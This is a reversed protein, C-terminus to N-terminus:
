AHRHPDIAALMDTQSRAIGTPKWKMISKFLQTEQEDAWADNLPDHEDQPTKPQADPLPTSAASAKTRKRPPMAVTSISPSRNPIATSRLAHLPRPAPPTTAPQHINPPTCSAGPSLAVAVAPSFKDNPTM